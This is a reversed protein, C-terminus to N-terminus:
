ERSKAAAASVASSKSTGHEPHVGVDKGHIWLEYREPQFRQVFTDMSIKVM